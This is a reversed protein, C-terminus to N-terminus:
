IDTDSTGYIHYIEEAVPDDSAQPADINDSRCYAGYIEEALPDDSALRLVIIKSPRPSVRPPVDEDAEYGDECYDDDAHLKEKNTYKVETYLFSVASPSPAREPIDTESTDSGSHFSSSEDADSQGEASYQTETDSSM